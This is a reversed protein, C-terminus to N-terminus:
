DYLESLFHKLFNNLLTIIYDTLIYYYMEFEEVKISHDQLSAIQNLVIRWYVNNENTSEHEKKRNIIKHTSIMDNEKQATM